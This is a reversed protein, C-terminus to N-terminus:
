ASAPRGSGSPRHQRPGDIPRGDPHADPQAVEGHRQFPVGRRWLRLAHWHILAITRHTMFPHRLLMGRRADPRDAPPPAPGPQDGAAAGDGQRENIRSACAARPTAAVHVTYRGEMDIFPSVYFEKDM